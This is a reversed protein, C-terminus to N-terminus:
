EVLARLTEAVNAEITYRGGRALLRERVAARKEPSAWAQMAGALAELDSPEVIVEGEVGREIIEAFGNATTTIVPLGAALAELCANSFPEYITPLVFADAAALLGRMQESTQGGLFQTRASCPLKRRKGEGAVLLTGGPLRELARMAWGLGKRQWGSGAFLLVYDEERLGLAARKEARVGPKDTWAPVGNHVVRVREGPTQFLAALEDKVLQSNAIIRRAGGTFLVREIALLERHKRQFRRFLPKYWPEYRARRQLWAAHAGDGARYADCEWVRELSFLFDCHRRPELRRLADAFEIPTTGEVIKKEGSWPASTWEVSGFLVCAHGAAQAAEAFRRLYAEAGGTGSYGRRVLGLKM